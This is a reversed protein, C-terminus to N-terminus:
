GHGKIKGIYFIRQYGVKHEPYGEQYGWFINRIFWHTSDSDDPTVHVFCFTKYHDMSYHNIVGDNGFGYECNKNPSIDM